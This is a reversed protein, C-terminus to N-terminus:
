LLIASHVWHVWTEQTFLGAAAWGGVLLRHLVASHHCKQTCMQKHTGTLKACQLFCLNHHNVKMSFVWSGHSIWLDATTTCGQQSVTDSRIYCCPFLWSSIWEVMEFHFIHPYSHQCAILFLLTLPSILFSDWRHLSRSYFSYSAHFVMTQKLILRLHCIVSQFMDFHIHM